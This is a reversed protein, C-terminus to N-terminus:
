QERGSIWYVAHNTTSYRGIGQQGPNEDDDDGLNIIYNWLKRNKEDKLAEGGPYSNRFVKWLDEIRNCPARAEPIMSEMKNKRILFDPFVDPTAQLFGDLVVYGQQLLLEM